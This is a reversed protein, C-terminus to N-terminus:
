IVSLGRAGLNDSLVSPPLHIKLTTWELGMVRKYDGMLYASDFRKNNASVRYPLIMEFVAMRHTTVDILREKWSNGTPVQTILPLAKAELIAVMQRYLEDMDTFHRFVSSIGVGAAKAVSAASPSFHGDGVLDLMAAVIKARSSESRKHRGDGVPAAELLTM